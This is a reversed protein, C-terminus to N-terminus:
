RNLRNRLGTGILTYTNVIIPGPLLGEEYVRAQIVRSGIVSIPQFYLPSAETPVTGNVTYRIVGSEATLSVSFNSRYVGGPISFVPVPAFGPGSISNQMGPTPNVLYGTKSVDIRDRGYSFDPEQPPYAPAFESVVEVRNNILALYEGKRNLKFNTHLPANLDSRNKGSAHVVLYENVNLLVSPFQWQTKNSADDTLYWGDLDVVVPGLNQIEIWDVREGDEDRIGNENDAQFESIIVGSESTWPMWVFLIIGFIFSRCRPM